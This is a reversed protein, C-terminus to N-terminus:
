LDTPTVFFVLNQIPLDTAQQIIVTLFGTSSLISSDKEYLPYTLSQDAFMSTSNQTSTTPSFPIDSDSDSDSDDSQYNRFSNTSQDRLISDDRRLSPNFLNEIFHATNESLTHNVPFATFFLEDNRISDPVGKCPYVTDAIECCSKHCFKLCQTCQYASNLVAVYYSGGFLRVSLEKEVFSM